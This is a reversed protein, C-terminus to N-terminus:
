EWTLWPLRHCYPLRQGSPPPAPRRLGRPKPAAGSRRAHGDMLPPLLDATSGNAPLHHRLRYSASPRAHRGNGGARLRRPASSPRAHFPGFSSVNTGRSMNPSTTSGDILTPPWFHYVTGSDIRTCVTSMRATMMMGRKAASASGSTCDIIANTGAGGGGGGAAAAGVGGALTFGAAAGTSAGLSILRSALMSAPKSPMAPPTSPPTAPPTTPPTTPPRGSAGGGGGGGAAGTRTPPLM